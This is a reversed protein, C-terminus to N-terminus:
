PHRPPLGYNLPARGGGGALGGSQEEYAVHAGCAGAGHQSREPYSMSCGSHGGENSSSELGGAAGADQESGAANGPASGDRESGAGNSATSGAPGDSGSSSTNNNNASLEAAQQQLRQLHCTVCNDEITLLGRDVLPQLLARLKKPRQKLLVPEDKLEELLASGVCGMNVPRHAQWGGPTVVLGLELICLLAHFQVTAVADEGPLADDVTDVWYDM